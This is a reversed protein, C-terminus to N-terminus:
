CVRYGPVAGQPSCSRIRGMLNVVHHIARGGASQLRLTGTPSSTGHLPDFYISSVSGTLRIREGAALGVSRLLKAGASCSASGDASCSCDAAAGTHVMYCAGAADAKLSIRVGQNRMVAESRAFQIDSVLQSAAGDLRRGELYGSFDPAAASLTIATVALVMAAEVLTFGRSARRVTRHSRM